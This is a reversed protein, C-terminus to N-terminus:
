ADEATEPPSEPTPGSEEGLALPIVLFLTLAPAVLYLPWLGPGPFVHAGEDLLFLLGPPLAAMWLGWSLVEAFSRQSLAELATVVAIGLLLGGTIWLLVELFMPFRAAQGPPTKWTIAAVEPRQLWRQIRGRHEPTNWEPQLWATWVPPVVEPGVTQIGQQLVTDQRAIWRAVTEAPWYRLSELGPVTELLLRLDEAGTGPALVVELRAGRHKWFQLGVAARLHLLALSWLILSAVLTGIGKM